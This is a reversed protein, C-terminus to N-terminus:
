RWGTPGNNTPQLEGRPRWVARGSLFLTCAGEVDGSYKADQRLHGPRYGGDWIPAGADTILIINDPNPQRGNMDKYRGGSVTPSFFNAFSPQDWISATTNPTCEIPNGRDDLTGYLGVHWWWSVGHRFGDNDDPVSPCGWVRSMAGKAAFGLYTFETAPKLYSPGSEVYPTDRGGPQSYGTLRTRVVGTCHPYPGDDGVGGPLRGRNDNAYMHVALGVQRMNSLEAVKLAQKRAKALSPLLISILLAIIGIVVLLEVLTFGRSSLRVDSKKCM